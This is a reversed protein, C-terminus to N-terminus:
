NQVYATSYQGFASIHALHKSNDCCISIQISNPGKGNKVCFVMTKSFKPITIEQSNGYRGFMNITEDKFKLFHVM